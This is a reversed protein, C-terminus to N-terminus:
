VRVGGGGKTFTWGDEATAAALDRENKIVTTPAAARTLPLPLPDSTHAVVVGVSVVGGNEHKVMTAIEGEERVENKLEEDKEKYTAETFEPFMSRAVEIDMDDEDTVTEQSKGQTPLVIM